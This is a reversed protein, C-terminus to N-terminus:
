SRNHIWIAAKKKKWVLPLSPPGEGGWVEKKKGLSRIKTYESRPVGTETTIWIPKGKKRREGSTGRPCWVNPGNKINITVKKSDVTRKHNSNSRGIDPPKEGGKGRSVFQLGDKKKQGPGQALQPGREDASGERSRKSRSSNRRGREALATWQWRSRGKKRVKGDCSNMKQRSVSKSKKNMPARFLTPRREVSTEATYAKGRSRM